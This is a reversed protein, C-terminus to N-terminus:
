RALSADLDRADYLLSAMQCAAPYRTPAELSLVEALIRDLRAAETELAALNFRTWAAIVQTSFEQVERHGAGKLVVDDRGGLSISVASGLIGKRLSPAGRMSLLPMAVIQGTRTIRIHDRELELVCASRGFPDSLFGFLPRQPLKILSM